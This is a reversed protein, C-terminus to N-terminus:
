EEKRLKTREDFHTMLPYCSRGLQKLYKNAADIENQNTEKDHVATDLQSEATQKEVSIQNRNANLDSAVKLHRRKVDQYDKVAEEEEKQLHEKAQEFEKRTGSMMDVVKGGSPKETDM